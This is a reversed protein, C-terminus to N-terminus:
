KYFLLSVRAEGYFNIRMMCKTNPNEEGPYIVNYTFIEQHEGYSKENAFIKKSMTRFQNINGLVEDSEGEFFMFEPHAKIKECWKVKNFHHFYIARGIKDLVTQFRDGALEMKFTEFSGLEDEALAAPDSIMSSLLKPRRVIARVGKTAFYNQGLKNSAQCTGLVYWLYEDDKSMETNHEECSPVIIPNTRFDRDTIGLELLDKTKPFLCRPPTHERTTAVRDCMYCTEPVEQKM